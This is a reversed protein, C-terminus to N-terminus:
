MSPEEPSEVIHPIDMNGLDPKKEDWAELWTKEPANQAPPQFSESLAVAGTDVALPRTVVTQDMTGLNPKVRDWETLELDHLPTLEMNVNALNTDLSLSQGNKDNFEVM